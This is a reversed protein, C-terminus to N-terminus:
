AIQFTIKASKLILNPEIYEGILSLDKLIPGLILKIEM